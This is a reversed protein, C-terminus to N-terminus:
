TKYVLKFGAENGSHIEVPISMENVKNKLRWMKKSVDARCDSRAKRSSNKAKGPHILLTIEDLSVYESNGDGQTARFEQEHLRRFVDYQWPAHKPSNLTTGHFLVLGDNTFQLRGDDAPSSNGRPCLLEKESGNRPPDPREPVDAGIERCFKDLETRLTHVDEVIPTFESPESPESSEPLREGKDIADQVAEAFGLWEDLQDAYDGNSDYIRNWCDHVQNILQKLTQQSLEYITGAQQAREMAVGDLAGLQPHWQGIQNRLHENLQERFDSMEFWEIAGTSTHPRIRLGTGWQDACTYREMLDPAGEEYQHLALFCVKFTGDKIARLVRPLVALREIPHAAGGDFESFISEALRDTDLLRVHWSKKYRWYFIADRLLHLRQRDQDGYVRLMRRGDWLVPSISLPVWPRAVCAKGPLGFAATVLDMQYTRSSAARHYIGRQEDMAARVTHRFEDRTMSPPLAESLLKDIRDQTDQM